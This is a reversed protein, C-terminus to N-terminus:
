HDRIVNCHDFHCHIMIVEYSNISLVQFCNNESTVVFLDKKNLCNDLTKLYLPLSSIFTKSHTQLNWTM